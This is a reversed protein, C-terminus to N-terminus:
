YTTAKGTESLDAVFKKPASTPVRPCECEALQKCRGRMEGSVTILYREYTVFPSLLELRMPKSHSKKEKEQDKKGMEVKM